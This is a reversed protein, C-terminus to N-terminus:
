PFFRNALFSSVEPAKVGSLVGKVAADVQVGPRHIAADEVLVARAQPGARHLGTRLGEQVDHGRISRPKDDGDLAPEGPVPQRVQAGGCAERADETMGERPLREM